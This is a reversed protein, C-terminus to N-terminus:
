GSALKEARQFAQFLRVEFMSQHTGLSSYQIQPFYAKKASGLLQTLDQTSPVIWGDKKKSGSACPSFNPTEMYSSFVLLFFYPAKCIPLQCSLSSGGSHIM